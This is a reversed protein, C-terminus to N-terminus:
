NSLDDKFKKILEINKIGPAIEFGSNIDLGEWRPHDFQLIAEVLSPNIGGSLLFPTAGTYKQLIGWDYTLGNGGPNKGKTDFVFLDCHDHYADTLAFDFHEDISFAKLTTLGRQQFRACFEPTEKGHLQIGALQYAAIKQDIYDQTANVFVGIKKLHNNTTIRTDVHRPSKEYFIMGMWDPQLTALQQINNPDKMGCVKLQM